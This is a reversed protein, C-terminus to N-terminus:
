DWTEVCALIEDKLFGGIFLCPGFVGLQIKPEACWCDVEKKQRINEYPKWYNMM